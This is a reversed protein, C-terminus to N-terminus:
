TIKLRDWKLEIVWCYYKSGTRALIRSLSRSFRWNKWRSWKYTENFYSSWLFFVFLNILFRGIKLTVSMLIKYAYKLMRFSILRPLVFHFEYVQFNISSLTLSAQHITSINSSYVIRGRVIFGDFFAQKQIRSFKMM